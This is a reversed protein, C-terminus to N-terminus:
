VKHAKFTFVCYLKFPELVPLSNIGFSSRVQLKEWFLGVGIHNNCIGRKHGARLRRNLTAASM